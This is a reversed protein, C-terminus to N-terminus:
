IAPTIDTRAFDDGKFLLPRGTDKALAYAFCDGFNLAAPHGIGRGYRRYANRGITAQAVTLPVIEIKLEAFLQEAERAMVPSGRRTIVAELELWTGASVALEDARIMTAAVQAKEPEGFLFAMIASTDVIM